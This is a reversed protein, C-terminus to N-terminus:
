LQKSQIKTWNEDAFLSRAAKAEIGMATPAWWTITVFKAAGAAFREGDSADEFFVDVVLANREASTHGSERAATRSVVASGTDVALYKGVGAIEVVSGYPIVSPDVACHGDHLRVGTASIDRGTYYDGEGAWYATVRALRQEGQSRDPAADSQTTVPGSATRLPSANSGFTTVITSNRSELPTNGSAAHAQSHTVAVPAEPSVEKQKAVLSPSVAGRTIDQTLTVETKKHDKVSAAAAVARESPLPIGKTEAKSSAPPTPCDAGQNKASLPLSTGLALFCLSYIYRM